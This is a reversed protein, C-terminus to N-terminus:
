AQEKTFVLTLDPRGRERRWPRWTKIRDRVDPFLLWPFFMMIVKTWNIIIFVVDITLKIWVDLITSWWFSLTFGVECVGVVSVAAAYPHWSDVDPGREILEVQAGRVAIGGSLRRRRFVAATVLLGLALLLPIANDLSKFIFYGRYTEVYCDGYSVLKVMSQSFILPPFILCALIWPSALLASSAVVPKNLIAFAARCAPLAAPLRAQPRYDCVHAMYVAVFIVLTWNSIFDQMLYTHFIASIHHCSVSQGNLFRSIGDINMPLQILSELLHQICFSAILKNRMRRRMDPSTVIALLMWANLALGLPLMICDM